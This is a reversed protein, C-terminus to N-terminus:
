ESKIALRQKVKACQWLKKTMKNAIEQLLNLAVYMKKWGKGGAASSRMLAKYGQTVKSAPSGGKRAM